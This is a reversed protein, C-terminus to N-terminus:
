QQVEKINAHRVFQHESNNIQLDSDKFPYCWYLYEGSDVDVGYKSLTAPTKSGTKFDVNTLDSLKNKLEITAKHLEIAEGNHEFNQRNIQFIKGHEIKHLVPYLAVNNENNLAKAIAQVQERVGSLSVLPILEAKIQVQDKYIYEVTLYDPISSKWEQKMQSLKVLSLGLLTIVQIVLGFMDTKFFWDTSLGIIVIVAIIFIYSMLEMKRSLFILRWQGLFKLEKEKNM